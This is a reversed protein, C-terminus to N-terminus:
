SADSWESFRIVHMAAHAAPARVTEDFSGPACVVQVGIVEERM